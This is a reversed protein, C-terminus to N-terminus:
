PKIIVKHTSRNGTADTWILLYNGAEFSSVDFRYNNEGKNITVQASYVMRGSIDVLQVVSKGSAESVGLVNLAESAPNPYVTVATAGKVLNVDVPDFTENDGNFDTQRLRYYSVGTLPQKDLFTYNNLTTSNGSGAIRGVAIFNVADDSREVTFYDNNIESATTWAVLVASNDVPKADFSLLEVPLPSPNGAGSFESFTTLGVWTFTRSGTNHGSSTGDMAMAGPTGFGAIWGLTSYKVPYIMSATGVLDSSDYTYVVNYVPSAALGSPTITWFRGIFDTTSVTMQPHKLASVKGTIFASSQGGNNLTLDFPTYYSADGVPFHYAANTNTFLTVLGQDAIIYKGSGYGSISGNTTNTGISLLNSNSVLNLRGSVFNLNNVVTINSSSGLLLDGSLLSLELDYFVEATVGSGVTITQNGGSQRDFVVKKSNHVFSSTAGTRTWNGGINFSGSYASTLTFTGNTATLNGRLARTDQLQLDTGADNIELNWPIGPLGSSISGTAWTKDSAPVQYDVTNAFRLISNV